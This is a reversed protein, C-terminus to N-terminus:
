QTLPYAACLAVTNAPPPTATGPDVRLVGDTV